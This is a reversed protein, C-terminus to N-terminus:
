SLFAVFMKLSLRKAHGFHNDAFILNNLFMLVEIINGVLSFTYLM